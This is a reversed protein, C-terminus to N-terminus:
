APQAAASSYVSYVLWGCDIPLTVGTIATAAPSCLFFIAEAVERPEVFRRLASKGLIAAPDREGSDIRQKMAPTLTYGPAVANVRVGQPGLEAAMVETLMKLASKSMGYAPQPTAQFTTLSCLNIIAGSGTEAMRRGFTRGMLLSGRLNIDIIRDFDAMPMETIRVANQLVGGSNVLAAVSGYTAYVDDAFAEVADQDAVDLRSFTVAGGAESLEAAIAAGREVNVDAMVTRWGAAVFKRVTAEGIGSAGGTVIAVPAAEENNIEVM